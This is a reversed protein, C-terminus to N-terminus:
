PPIPGVTGPWRQSGTSEGPDGGASAEPTVSSIADADGQRPELPGVAGPSRGRRYTGPWISIQPSRTVSGGSNAEPRIGRVEERSFVDRNIAVLVMLDSWIERADDQARTGCPNAPLQVRILNAASTEATRQNGAVEFGSTVSGVRVWPDVAHSAEAGSPNTWSKAMPSQWPAPPIRVRTRRLASARKSGVDFGIQGAHLFPPYELGQGGREM